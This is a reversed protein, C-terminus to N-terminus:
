STNLLVNRTLHTMISKVVTIIYTASSLFLNIFTNPEFIFNMRKAFRLFLNLKVQQYKWSVAYHLM